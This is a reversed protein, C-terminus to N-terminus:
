QFAYTYGADVTGSRSQRHTISKCLQNAYANEEDALCDRLGRWTDSTINTYFFRITLGPIRSDIAEVHATNSSSYM